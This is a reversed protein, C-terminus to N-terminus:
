EPETLRETAFRPEDCRRRVVEEAHAGGRRLAATGPRRGPRMSACDIPIAPISLSSMAHHPSWWAPSTRTSASTAGAPNKGGCHKPRSAPDAFTQGFVLRGWGLELEVDDAMADMLHTPPADAGWRVPAVAEPARAVQVSTPSALKLAYRTTIHARHIVPACLAPQSRPGPQGMSPHRQTYM